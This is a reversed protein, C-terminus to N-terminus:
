PAFLELPSPKSSGCFSTSTPRSDGAIPDFIYFMNIPDDVSPHCVLPVYRSLLINNEVLMSGTIIFEVVCSEFVPQNLPM